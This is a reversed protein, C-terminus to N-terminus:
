SLLVKPDAEFYCLNLTFKEFKLRLLLAVISVFSFGISNVLFSKHM